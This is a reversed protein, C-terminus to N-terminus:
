KKFEQGVLHAVQVEYPFLKMVEKPIGTASMIANMCRVSYVVYQTPTWRLAEFNKIMQAEDEGTIRIVYPMDKARSPTQIRKM